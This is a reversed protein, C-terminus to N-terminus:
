EHAPVLDRGKREGVPLGCRLTDFGEALSRALDAHCSPVAEIRGQRDVVEYNGADALYRAAFDAAESRRAKKAAACNRLPEPNGPKRLAAIFLGEGRVAGPAFRYCPLPCDIGPLVGEYADLGLDVGEAGTEEALWMLNEENERRNFTCTSYIFTGGPRLAKWLERVIKRQLAACDAVLKESWQAVAEPDKRMMGEGSCPVDAAVIHFAEPLRSYRAADGRTVAVAAYGRRCINEALINARHRDAENAVVFSGEPLADIAAITKGGPAACADLYRLGCGEPCDAAIRRVVEGLVMSSADQVYYRGQHWAPDAAFLPREDLYVGQPEWAVRCAGDAAVRAGKAANARIALSPETARLAQLLAAAEPLGCDMIEKEFGAPLIREM